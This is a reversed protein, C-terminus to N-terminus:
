IIRLRGDLSAKENIESFQKLNKAQSSDLWATLLNDPEDKPYTSLYSMDYLEVSKITIHAMQVTLDLDEQVAVEREGDIKVAGLELLLVYGGGEMAALKKDRSKKTRWVPATRTIKVEVKQGHIKLDPFITTGEIIEVDSFHNSMAFEAIIGLASNFKKDDLWSEPVAFEKFTTGVIKEKVFKLFKDSM